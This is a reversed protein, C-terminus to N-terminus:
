ALPVEVDYSIHLRHNRSPTNNDHRNRHISGLSGRNKNNPRALDKDHVHSKM